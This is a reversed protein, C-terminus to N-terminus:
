NLPKKELLVTRSGGTETLISIVDENKIDSFLTRFLGDTAIRQGPTYGLGELIKTGRESSSAMATVRYGLTFIDKLTQAMDHDNGYRSIHPEFIIMPAYVGAKIDKLMGNIVEVEHGEVDMRILDPPGFEEALSSVTITRVNETEGTLTEAGGGIPHFTGLNSQESLYFKKEGMQDSVAAAIIPINKYGNLALNLSLMGVNSSSPEVIVMKGGDGLLSLEMLPYYGINGGIDFIMMDKKVIKELMIKHDVERTGFLSLSRSLGADKTDLLMRYSHIEREIYRQGLVKSQFNTLALRAFTQILVLLGRQRIIAFVSSIKRLTM